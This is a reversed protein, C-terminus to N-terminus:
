LVISHMIEPKKWCNRDAMSEDGIIVEGQGSVGAASTM